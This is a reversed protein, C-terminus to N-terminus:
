GSSRAWGCVGTHHGTGPASRSRPNSEGSPLESVGVQLLCCGSQLGVGIVCRCPGCVGTEQGCERENIAESQSVAGVSNSSYREM